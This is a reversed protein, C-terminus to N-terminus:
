ILLSLSEKSKVCLEEEPRIVSLGHSAAKPLVKREVIFVRGRLMGRVPVSIKKLDSETTAAGSAEQRRLSSQPNVAVPRHNSSRKERRAQFQHRFDYSQALLPEPAL